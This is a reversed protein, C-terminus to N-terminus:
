NFVIKREPYKTAYEHILGRIYDNDAQQTIHQKIIELSSQQFHTEWNGMGYYRGKELLFCTPTETAEDVIAFTPLQSHFHSIAELVRQNYLQPEETILPPSGGTNFCFAENLNYDRVLKRLIVQGEHLLNFTYLPILQPLKKEIVIHLYGKQDEFSYLGYQHHYRKQSRNFEPWLRRIENSELILAALESSCCVYKISHVRKLLEQKRHGSDNNSFHSRVRKQLNTAKGVYIIKNRQDYFYYVGPTSPLSDLDKSPVNPPLYQEKNKGKLMKLVHKEADNALIKEFLIATAAADGMARHRNDIVINLEDCISGLSYKRYGPFVKRALRVTCLKKTNLEFGSQELQHKIFSFDFNVNHAVFVRDKLLNFINSAVNEFVPADAVMEQTIGTLSAIYRPILQQPNILTHFRGEVERGNHLIIAIETIGNGDAYGGTTEIDVIAYM